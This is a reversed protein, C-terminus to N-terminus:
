ADSAIRRIWLEFKNVWSSLFARAKEDTIDYAESIIGPKFQFYLEPQGMLIVELVVLTNRLQSQAVATGIAGGSAGGIAGPKGAWVNHGPPRTGWDFANKLVAPVGRNYEPTVLLVADCAKVEAKFTTVTAPPHQWLDDNYLPLEGINIFRFELKPEALKALARALKMNISERRLSGVVVAVSFM